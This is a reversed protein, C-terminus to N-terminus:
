EDFMIWRAQHQLEENTPIHSNPNHPSVTSAVFRSLERTLRRYCNNDDAFVPTTWSNNCSETNVDALNPPMSWQKASVILATAAPTEVARDLDRRRPRPLEFRKNMNIDKTGGVASLNTRQRFPALWHRSSYILESLLHTFAESLTPSCAEMRRVINLAECQLEGDGVELGLLKPIKVYDCLQAEMKCGEFNSEKGHIRLTTIRSKAAGKMPRIRAHKTVDESSM